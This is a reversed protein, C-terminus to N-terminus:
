AFNPVGRFMSCYKFIKKDLPIESSCIVATFCRHNPVLLYKFGVAIKYIDVFCDVDPNSLVKKILQLTLKHM